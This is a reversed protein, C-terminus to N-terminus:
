PKSNLTEPKPPVPTTALRETIAITALLNDIHLQCQTWFYQHEGGGDDPADLILFSLAESVSAILRFPMNAAKSLVELEDDPLFIKLRHLNYEGRLHQQLAFPFAKILQLVRISASQSERALERVEKLQATRRGVDEGTNDEELQSLEQSAELMQAADDSSGSAWSGEASPGYQELRPLHTAVLRALSRCERQVDGWASRAEWFRQYSTQTRFAILLGLFSGTVAHILGPLPPISPVVYYLVSVAAAVLMNVSLHPLIRKFVSSSLFTVLSTVWYDDKYRSPGSLDRGDDTFRYLSSMYKGDGDLAKGSSKKSAVKIAIDERFGGGKKKQEKKEAVEEETMELPELKPKAKTKPAWPQMTSYVKRKKTTEADMPASLSQLYASSSPAPATRAAAKAAPRGGAGGGAAGSTAGAVAGKTAQSREAVEEERLIKARPLVVNKDAADKTARDSAGGGRGAAEAETTGSKKAGSSRDHEKKETEKKKNGGDGGGSGEPASALVVLTCRVAASVAQRKRWAAVGSAGEDMTFGM